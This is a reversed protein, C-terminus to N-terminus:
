TVAAYGTAPGECVQWVADPKVYKRIRRRRYIAFAAAGIAKRLTGIVDYAPQQGGPTQSRIEANHWLLNAGDRGAGPVHSGAISRGTLRGYHAPIDSLATARARNDRADFGGRLSM